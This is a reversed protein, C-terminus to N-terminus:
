EVSWNGAIELQSNPNLNTRTGFGNAFMRLRTGVRGFRKGALPGTLARALTQHMDGTLTPLGQDPAFVTLVDQLVVEYRAVVRGVEFSSPESFDAGPHARQYVSLEGVIDLAHVVQDVTRARLGGNAFVTLLAASEDHPTGAFLDGRRSHSARMLYGYATFTHGTAGSQDIRGRFEVTTTGRPGLSVQTIGTAEAQEPLGSLVGAGALVASGAMVRRRTVSAEGLPRTPVSPENQETDSM